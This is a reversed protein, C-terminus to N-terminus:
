RSVGCSLRNRMGAIMEPLRLQVTRASGFAARDDKTWSAFSYQAELSSVCSVISLM